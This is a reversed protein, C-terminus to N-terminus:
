EMQNDTSKPKNARKSVVSEMEKTRFIPAGDAFKEEAEQWIDDRVNNMGDGLNKKVGRFFQMLRHKRVESLTMEKDEIHIIIRKGKKGEVVRYIGVRFKGDQYYTLGFLEGANASNIMDPTVVKKETIRLRKGDVSSRAGLVAEVAYLKGSKVEYHKFEYPYVDLELNPHHKTPGFLACKYNTM